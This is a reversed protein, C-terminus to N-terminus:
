AIPNSGAAAPVPSVEPAAAAEGEADEAAGAETPRRSRRRRRRKKKSAHLFGPYDNALLHHDIQRMTELAVGVTILLKTGGFPFQTIGWFKFVVFPVLAIVALFCAGPL